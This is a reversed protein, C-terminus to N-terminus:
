QMLLGSAASGSVNFCSVMLEDFLFVSTWSVMMNDPLHQADRCSFVTCCMEIEKEVTLSHQFHSFPSVGRKGFICKFLLCHHVPNSLGGCLCASQTKQNQPNNYNKVTIKEATESNNLWQSVRHSHIM